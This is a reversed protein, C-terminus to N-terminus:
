YLCKDDNLIQLLRNLFELFNHIFTEETSCAYRHKYYVNLWVTDDYRDDFGKQNILAELEEISM